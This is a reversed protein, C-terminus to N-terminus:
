MVIRFHNDAMNPKPMPLLSVAPSFHYGVRDYVQEAPDATHKGSKETEGHWRPEDGASAAQAVDKGNDVTVIDPNRKVREGSESEAKEGGPEGEQGCAHDM